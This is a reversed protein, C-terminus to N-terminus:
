IVIDYKQRILPFPFTKSIMTQYLRLHFFFVIRKNTYLHFNNYLCILPVM